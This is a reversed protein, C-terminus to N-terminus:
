PRRRPRDPAAHEGGRHGRGGTGPRALETPQVLLGGESLTLEGFSTLDFVESVTLTDVPTSWCARSGSASPTTPRCTSRPRCDPLDAATGDACVEVDQGASIQTQGRVGPGDRDRRGHRRPRGRRPQVRLHRRLDRRRRRRRRGAPLLRLLRARRRRRGRPRHGAPRRAADHSRRGQVAGIEHTPTLECTTPEPEPPPATDGPQGSGPHGRGSEALGVCRTRLRLPPVPVPRGARHGSRRRRHRHQTLGAAPGDHGHVRGRLVPVGRVAGGADVLAIGDPSATRCATGRTPRRGRRRRGDPATVPPLPRHRLDVGGTGNYLVVELRRAPAPRAPAGRRVRRHRRRHQRLPDRLHVPTTPPAAQAFAPLGVVAVSAALTGLAARRALVRPSGLRALM